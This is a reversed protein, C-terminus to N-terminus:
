LAGNAFWLLTGVFSGTFPGFAANSYAYLGGASSVRSGAEAFCLVVCFFLLATVIYGIPASAGM